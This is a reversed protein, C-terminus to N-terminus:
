IDNDIIGYLALEKKMAVICHILKFYFERLQNEECIAKVRDFIQNWPLTTPDFDRDWKMPGTAQSKRKKSFFGIITKLDM